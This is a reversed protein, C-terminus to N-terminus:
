ANNYESFGYGVYSTDSSSSDNSMNITKYFLKIYVTTYDFYNHHISKDRLYKYGVLSTVKSNMPVLYEM